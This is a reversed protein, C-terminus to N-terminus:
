FKEIFNEPNNKFQFKQNEAKGNFNLLKKKKPKSKILNQLNKWKKESKIKKTNCKCSNLAKLNKKEFLM